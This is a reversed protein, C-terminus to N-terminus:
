PQQPPKAFGGKVESINEPDNVVQVLKNKGKRAAKFIARAPSIESYGPTFVLTNFSLPTLNPPEVSVIYVGPGKKSPSVLETLCNRKKLVPHSPNTPYINDSPTPIELTVTLTPLELPFHLPKKPSRTNYPSKRTL